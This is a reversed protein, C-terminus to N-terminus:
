SLEEEILKVTPCPYSIVPDSLRRLQNCEKCINLTNGFIPTHLKLVERIINCHRDNAYYSEQDSEIQALLEDHTM